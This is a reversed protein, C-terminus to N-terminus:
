RVCDFRQLEARHLRVNSHSGKEDPSFRLMHNTCSAVGSRLKKNIWAQAKRM